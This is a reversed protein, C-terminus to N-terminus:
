NTSTGGRTIAWTEHYPGGAAYICVLSFDSRSAWDLDRIAAFSWTGDPPLNPDGVHVVGNGAAPCSITIPVQIQDSERELEGGDHRRLGAVAAALSVAIILFFGAMRFRM